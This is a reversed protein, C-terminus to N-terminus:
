SIHLFSCCHSWNQLIFLTKSNGLKRSSSLLMGLFTTFSLSVTSGVITTGLFNVDRMITSNLLGFPWCPILWFLLMILCKKQHIPMHLSTCWCMLLQLNHIWNRGLLIYMWGICKSIGWTGNALQVMSQIPGGGVDEFPWLCASVKIQRSVKYRM